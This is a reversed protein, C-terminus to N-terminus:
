QQTKDIDSIAKNILAIHSIKEKIRIEIKARKPGEPMPLSQEGKKKSQFELLAQDKSLSKQLNLKKTFLESRDMVVAAPKPAWFDSEEPLIGNNEWTKRALTFLDMRASFKAMQDLLEVRQAAEDKSNGEIKKLATHSATRKAYLDHFEHIIRRIVKPLQQMDTNEIHMPHDPDYERLVVKPASGTFKEYKGSIEKGTYMGALPATVKELRDLQAFDFGAIKSLEYELKRQYRNPRGPFISKMNKNQGYKSYLIVGTDYVRSGNFWNAIEIYAPDTTKM